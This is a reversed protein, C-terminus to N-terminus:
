LETPVFVGRSQTDTPQESALSPAPAIPAVPAVPVLAAVPVIRAPAPSSRSVAVAPAQPVMALALVAPALDAETRVATASSRVTRAVGPEQERPARVQGVWWGVGFTMMLAAAIAIAPVAASRPPPPPISAFSEARPARLANELSPLSADVREFPWGSSPPDDELDRDDLWAPQPAGRRDLVYTNQLAAMYEQM